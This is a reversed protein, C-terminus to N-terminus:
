DSLFGSYFIQFHAPIECFFFLPGVYYLYVAINPFSAVSINLPASDNGVTIHRPNASNGVAGVPLYVCTPSKGLAKAYLGAKEKGFRCITKHYMLGHALTIKATTDGTIGNCIRDAEVLICDVGAAKLKYACLIGAIGGGIILVDTSRAGTLKAFSPSDTTRAWISNM